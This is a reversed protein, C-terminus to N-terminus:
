GAATGGGFAQTCAPVLSTSFGAEDARRAWDVLTRGETDPVANPLGIGVDMNFRWRRENVRDLVSLLRGRAPVDDPGRVRGAACLAEPPTLGAHGIGGGLGLMCDQVEPLRLIM